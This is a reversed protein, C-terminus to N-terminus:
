AKGDSLEKEIEKAGDEVERFGKRLEVVSQGLGRAIKPLRTGFLLLAILAIVCLEWTGPMGFALMLDKM